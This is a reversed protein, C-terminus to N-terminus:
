MDIGLVETMCEAEKDGEFLGSEFMSIDSRNVSSDSDPLDIMIIIVVYSHVHTLSIYYHM